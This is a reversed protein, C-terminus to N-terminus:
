SKVAPRLGALCLATLLLYSIQWWASWFSVNLLGSSWYGVNVLLAAFLATDGNKLYDGALKLCSAVVLTLLALAGFVGTEAFVEVLWSHPHSPIVNLTNRPMLADAGPLLNIVNIGNGFWPSRMAIDIAHSWITQRQYDILWPPLVAVTGAPAEIYGRTTHLWVLLVVTVAIFGISIAVNVAVNRRMVMILVGGVFLMAFLGAMASRNYTLWIIALFGVAIAAALGQWRGGLHRGAWVLVPVLLMGVSAFVKFLDPPRFGYYPTATWGLMRVFSLIEPLFTLASLAYVVSVASTVILAKLALTLAARDRSLLAWLLTMLGVFVPIRAWAEFSRLPLPSFFMSPLWLVLTVLFLVGIPSRAREIMARWYARREPLLALILVALLLPIALVARGYAISPVAM